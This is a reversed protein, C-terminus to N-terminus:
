ESNDDQCQEEDELTHREQMHHLAIEVERKALGGGLIHALFFLLIGAVGLTCGIWLPVGIRAFGTLFFLSVGVVVPIGVIWYM